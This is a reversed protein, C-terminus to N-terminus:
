PFMLLLECPLYKTNRLIPTRTILELLTLKDYPYTKPPSDEPSFRLQPSDEYIRNKYPLNQLRANKNKM